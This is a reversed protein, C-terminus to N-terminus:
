DRAGRGAPLYTFRVLFLRRGDRQDLPYLEDLAEALDRLGAFGDARADEDTLEDPEVPGAADIRVAGLGPVTHVSNARVRCRSWYRLTTTKRGSRIDDFFRKKILLM